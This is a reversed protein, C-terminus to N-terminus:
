PALAELEDMVFDSLWETSGDSTCCEVVYRDPKGPAHLIDILTGVDGLAPRRRNVRWDDYSDDDSRLMRRIRVESYLKFSTM